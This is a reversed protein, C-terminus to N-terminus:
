YAVMWRRGHVRRGRGAVDAGASNVPAVERLGEYKEVADGSGDRGGGSERGGGDDYGGRVGLMTVTSM